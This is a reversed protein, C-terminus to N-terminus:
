IVTITNFIANFLMCDYHIQCFQIFTFSNYKGKVPFFICTNQSFFFISTVPMKRRKGLNNEFARKEWVKSQIYPNGAHLSIQIQPNRKTVKSTHLATHATEWLTMM